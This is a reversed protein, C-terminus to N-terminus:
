ATRRENTGSHSRPVPTLDMFSPTLRIRKLVHEHSLLIWRGHAREHVGAGSLSGPDAVGYQPLVLSLFGDGLSMAHADDWSSHRAECGPPHTHVQALPVLLFSRVLKAVQANAEESISYNGPGWRGDPFTLTTVVDIRDKDNEIGHWYVASEVRRARFPEFHRVTGEWIHSPLLLTRGSAPPEPSLTPPDGTTRRVPLRATMLSTV